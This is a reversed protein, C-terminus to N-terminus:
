GSRKIGGIERIHYNPYEGQEIKKVFESRSMDENTYNDHFNTNRGSDTEKTVTVKKRAM